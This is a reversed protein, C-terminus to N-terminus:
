DGKTNSCSLNLLISCVISLVVVIASNIWFNTTRVFFVPLLGVFLGVTTVGFAMAPNDPMVSLLMEFTICMTMSFLCVGIVSIVMNNNGVVLFPISLLTSFVGVCKAGFKDALFGGAAKGIGMVFFLLFSQWTENKWSMPIAYGVYSRVATVGFAILIIAWVAVETRVAYFRPYEKEARWCRTVVILIEILVLPLILWILSMQKVGLTQGIILGFSGGSVFLASPFIKGKSYTVTAVAGYEHLISNGCALIIVSLIHIALINSEIGCVGMGMMLVGLTGFPIRRFKTMIEGFIGQPVFAFVDYTLAIVGLLEIPYYKRLAAFCVLEVLFHEIFFLVGVTNGKYAITKQM